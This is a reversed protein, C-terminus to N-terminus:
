LARVPHEPTLSAPCMGMVVMGDNGRAASEALSNEVLWSRSLVQHAKVTQCRWSQFVTAEENVPSSALAPGM